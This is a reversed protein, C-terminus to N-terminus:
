CAFRGFTERWGKSFAPNESHSKKPLVSYLRVYCAFENLKLCMKTTKYFVGTNNYGWIFIM